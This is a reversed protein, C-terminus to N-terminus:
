RTTSPVAIAPTFTMSTKAKPNSIVPTTPINLPPNSKQPQNPAMPSPITPM